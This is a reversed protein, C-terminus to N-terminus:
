LSAEVALLNRFIPILEDLQNVVFDAHSAHKRNAPNLLLATLSGASRGCQMDDWGDGVMILQSAPLGWQSAIHLLPDPHPKAPIFSRTVIPHFVYSLHNQLVHDVSPLANRTLIAKPVSRTELFAMLEHLGPQLKTNALAEDEMERIIRDADTREPGSLTNLKAVIDDTPQFRLRRKMELFDMYPVTLTGDMDFVVGRISGAAAAAAMSATARAAVAGAAAGAAAASAM